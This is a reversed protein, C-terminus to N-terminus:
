QYILIIIYSWVVTTCVDDCYVLAEVRRSAVAIALVGVGHAPRLQAGRMRLVGAGGGDGELVAM